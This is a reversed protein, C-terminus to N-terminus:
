FAQRAVCQKIVYGSLLDWRFWAAVEASTGSAAVTTQSCTTEACINITLRQDRQPKVVAGAEAEPMAASMSIHVQLPPQLGDASHLELFGPAVVRTTLLGMQGTM